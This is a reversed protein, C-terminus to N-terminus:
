RADTLIAVFDRGASNSVANHCAMCSAPADQTYTEMTVNIFNQNPDEGGGAVQYPEGPTDPALRLGPFYVGDNEPSPPQTVTPWQIAVLMYNAWVTGKIEPLAWYARNTAMIEPRIPHKRIAQTPAPDPDPPNALSVPQALPSNEPPEVAAQPKAPDNYSYPAGAALADPERAEGAGVPPVNDVHEFSSWIWQPRYLTKVAIHMGVLAVDRKVCVSRGAAITRAVDEVEADRVVYYRARLAPTDADTLARWAAKIAISGVNFRAPHDVTPLQDRRWWGNAVISDFEAQNVRVEYRTYARNQAVLPGFFQGVTFSAQNLDAFPEFSALIKASRPSPDRCPNLGEASAWPAPAIAGGDPARQFVEWRAKFTEWIRPGPDALRKARDPEGRHAPDTLGPWNLAIFARWAFNDFAPFPDPKTAPVDEIRDPLVKPEVDESLAPAAAGIAWVAAAALRLAFPIAGGRMFRRDIGQGTM